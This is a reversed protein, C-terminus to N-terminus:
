KALGGSQLAKVLRDSLKSIDGAGLTLALDGPQLLGLMTDLWAAKDAAYCVNAHGSRRVEDYISEGSIGPLPTEGAAYVDTLMVVDADRFATGFEKLLDRTRTYRHPQFAVVVRRNFSRKAGALTAAIEAPHHGYDDYVRVGGGEGKLEFRRGVGAFSALAEQYATYPV